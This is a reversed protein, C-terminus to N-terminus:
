IRNMKYLVYKISPWHHNKQYDKSFLHNLLASRFKKEDDSRIHLFLYEHFGRMRASFTGDSDDLFAYIQEQTNMPFM